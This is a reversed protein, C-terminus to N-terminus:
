RESLLGWRVIDSRSSMEQEFGSVNWKQVYATYLAVDESLWEEFDLNMGPIYVSENGDEERWEIFYMEFPGTDEQPGM